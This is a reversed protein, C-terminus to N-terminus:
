CVDGPDASWLKQQLGAATKKLHSTLNKSRVPVTPSFYTRKFIRLHNWKSHLEHWSKEPTEHRTKFTKTDTRTPVNQQQKTVILSHWREGQIVEGHEGWITLAYCRKQDGQHYINAGNM